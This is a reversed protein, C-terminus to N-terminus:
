RQASPLPPSPRRRRAVSVVVRWGLLFLALFVAAVAVFDLPTGEGTLHRLVMGVVLAGLWSAVGSPWVAVPRRWARVVIWGVVAGAAFPWATTVVGTLTIGEAHSRRGIAAFVVLAVLDVVLWVPRRQRM